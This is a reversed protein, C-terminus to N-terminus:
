PFLYLGKLSKANHCTTTRKPVEKVPILPLKFFYLGTILYM